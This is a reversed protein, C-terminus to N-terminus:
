PAQRGTRRFIETTVKKMWTGHVDHAFSIESGRELQIKSYSIHYFAPASPDKEPWIHCKGLHSWDVVIVSDIKMMLAIHKVVDTSHFLRGYSLQSQGPQSSIKKAYEEGDRGLVVWAQDIFGKSLYSRWLRKRNQWMRKADESTNVVNDVIELFLELSQKTLWRLMVERAEYSAGNWCAANLRPDKLHKLLFAEIETRQEASPSAHSFPLLLANCLINIVKSGGGFILSGEKNVSLAIITRTAHIGELRKFNDTISRVAQEFAFLGVNSQAISRHLGCASFTDALTAPGVQTALLNALHPITQAPSFICHENRASLWIPGMKDAYRQLFNAIHKTSQSDASFTDLYIIALYRLIRVRIRNELEKLYRQLLTIDTLLSQQGNLALPSNRWNTSTLQSFDNNKSCRFLLSNLKNLNETPRPDLTEGNIICTAVEVAKSKPLSIPKVVHSARGWRLLLDRLGESM